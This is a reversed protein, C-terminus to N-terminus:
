ARIGRRSPGAKPRLWSANNLDIFRALLLALAGVIRFIRKM